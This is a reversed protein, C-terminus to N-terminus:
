SKTARHQAPVVVAPATLVRRMGTYIPCAPCTLPDDRKEIPRAVTTEHKFPCRYTYTPM